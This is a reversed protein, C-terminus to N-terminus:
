KSKDNTTILDELRIKAENILPLYYSKFESWNYYGGQEQKIPLAAFKGNYMLKLLISDSKKSKYFIFQLNSAMPIDFSRWYNKLENPNDIIIGFNNLRMFSMMPLIASDHSFRLRLDISGTALDKDASNIIEELTASSALMNKRDTLPSTGLYIYGNYNRVEWFAFLEDKTFVGEFPNSINDLCQTDLMCLALDSMFKWMGYKNELYDPENFYRKAFSLADVKSDLMDKQSKVAKENLPKGKIYNSSKPSNPLLYSLFVNGADISCDFTRDLHRLEDVFSFMSMMTRQFYTSIAVASTNGRFVEPYNNYMNRAIKRWQKQGSITLDGERYKVKQFFDKYTEFLKEGKDNLKGDTHASSLISYVDSYLGLEHVYRAGHRGFMSIYVPKYGKPAKIEDKTPFDYMYLEGGAKWINEYVETKSDFKFPAYEQASLQLSASILIISVSEAIFRLRYTKM